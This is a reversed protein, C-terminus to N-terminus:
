FFATKLWFLSWLSYIFYFRKGWEETELNQGQKKNEVNTEGTRRRQEEKRKRKPVLLRHFSNHVPTRCLWCDGLTFDYRRSEVILREHLRDAKFGFDAALAKWVDSKHCVMCRLRDLHTGHLALLSVEATHFAL